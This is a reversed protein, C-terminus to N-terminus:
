TRPKRNNGGIVIVLILVLAWLLIGGNAKTLDWQIM